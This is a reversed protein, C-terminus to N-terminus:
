LLPRGISNATATLYGSFRVPKISLVALLASRSCESKFALDHVVSLPWWVSPHGNRALSRARGSIEGSDWETCVTCFDNPHSWLSLDGTHKRMCFSRTHVNFIGYDTDSNPPNHFCSFLRAHVLLTQTLVNHFFVCFFFFFFVSQPQYASTPSLNSDAEAWLLGIWRNYTKSVTRNGYEFTTPKSVAWSTQAVTLPVSSSGNRSM